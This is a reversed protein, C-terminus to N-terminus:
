CHAHVTSTQLNGFLSCIICMHWYAELLCCQTEYHDQIRGVHLTIYLNQVNEALNSIM